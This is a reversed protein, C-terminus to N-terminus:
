HAATYHAQIRSASLVSGYIAVEDMSGNFAQNAQIGGGVSHQVQGLILSGGNPISTYTTLHGTFMLTGDKYLQSQGDSARWTWVLDHWQGDNVSVGTGLWRSGDTFMLNEPKYLLLRFPSGPIAYSLLGTGTGTTKVWMEITIATTPLGNFPNANIYSGTSGTLGAATNSDGSLAGPQGLSVGHYALSNGNGSSDTATSGSSEGLRWYDLPHDALVASAYSSTPTGTPSASPTATPTIPTATPTTPTPTIPTATPTATNTAVPTPTPSSGTGGTAAAFHAQVQSATLASNYLAFDDMSGGYANTAWLGGDMATQINGLLLAGGNPIPSSSLTGTYALSGNNFVQTQGDSARWTWVLYHWQGDEVNLGTDRTTTGDTVQVTGSIALQMRSFNGPVAYSFIGETNPITKVWGEWTFATSPMSNFPYADIYNEITRQLGVATNSDGSIAGQAGLAANHYTLANGNGTSDAAMAGSCEGFRWYAVPHDALVTNSYTSTSSQSASTCLPPTPSPSPLPTPTPGTPPTTGNTVQMDWSFESTDGQLDTATTTVYDGVSLGTVNYLNWKGGTGVITSGLFTQGQGYNGRGKDTSLRAAKFVEVTCGVCTPDIGNVFNPFANWLTPTNLENNPGSATGNSSNANPGSPYLDIGLGANNYISNQTITNDIDGATSIWVGLGAAVSGATTNAIVNGPGITENHAEYCICIGFNNNPAATGNATVGIDNNKVVNNPTDWSAFQIGGIDSNVIVNGQVLTNHVSDEIRLGMYANYAYSPANNCSVDTGYCNDIIQNGTTAADHSVETGATWDTTGTQGNGSIINRDYQASGGILNNSAGYNIDIGHKWNQLRRTGDPSLGIINNQVTNNNSGIDNISMGRYANGSIVNRDALAPSGIRNSAAGADLSIGDANLVSGSADFSGAADTGIFNGVITNNTAAPGYMNMANALNYFAIGRITNNPETMHIGDFGGSSYNPGNGRVQIMIKANDIQPDTNVAAGPQSYGDITIGGPANNLTPLQSSLQITHVGSGSINFDITTAGSHTDAEQIAARLTCVGTSTACVGDGPNGDAADGTSNVILTLPSSTQTALMADAHVVQSFSAASRSSAATYHSAVMEIDSVDICGDHNVDVSPNPLQGCVNGAERATRWALAANMVDAHTVEGDGTIDFPGPALPSQGRGQIWSSAAPAPHAPGGSGVQVQITSTPATVSVNSGDATVFEMDALQITLVGTQEPTIGLTALQVTGNAGHPNPSGGSVCNAVPCSYLGVALGDPRQVPGLQGVDRGLRHLTSNAVHYSDLQAASGDYLVRMEYGAIDRAQHVTLSLVIPQYLAVQTPADVELYTGQPTSQARAAVTWPLLIASIALLLAGFACIWQQGRKGAILNLARRGLDTMIEGQRHM